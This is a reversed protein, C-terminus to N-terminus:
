HDWEVTVGRARLQPIYIHISDDSLPNGTLALRDVGLKETQLLPAIDSIQNNNLRFLRTHGPLDTLNNALYALPAIDGIENDRLGLRILNTLNAVASIDSIQNDNLSLYELNTLNALPSIDSVQNDALHLYTLNTLGTLPVIDSVGNNYLNLRTLSTLGTLPSIDSIRNEDLYLPTLSTLGALPSIDTIRNGQPHLGTLNVCYELGTLDFISRRSARLRDLGDLDSPYIDGTPKDIAERVAAELNADAFYVPTGRDGGDCGIMGAILSVIILLISVRKM